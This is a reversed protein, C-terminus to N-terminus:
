TGRPFRDILKWEDIDKLWEFLIGAGYRGAQRHTEFEALARARTEYELKLAASPGSRDQAEWLVLHYPRTTHQIM